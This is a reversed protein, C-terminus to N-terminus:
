TRGPSVRNSQRRGYRPAYEDLHELSVNRLLILMLVGLLSEGWLISGFALELM